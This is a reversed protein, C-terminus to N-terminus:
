RTWILLVGCRSGSRNYKAPVQATSSYVEVGAIHEPPVTNVDFLGNAPFRADFVMAGDIYVDMFCAPRAGAAVDARNLSEVSGGCFACTTGVARGSAVWVRNSGRRVVVGPVLALLDGTTRLGGEAKALQSRDLFHGIGAAKREMFEVLRAPTREGPATVVREPLVTGEAHRLVVDASVVEDADISVTSSEARFGIARVVLLHDGPPIGTLRFRGSSDSVAARGLGPLAAQAGPVIPRGSDAAVVRGAIEGQARAAAPLALAIAALALSRAQM